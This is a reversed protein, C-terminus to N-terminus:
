YKSIKLYRNFYKKIYKIEDYEYIIYIVYLILIIKNFFIM